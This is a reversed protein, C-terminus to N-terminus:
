QLTFLFAYRVKETSSFDKFLPPRLLISEGYLDFGLNLFKVMSIAAKKIDFLECRLFRLRFDIHNIYSSIITGVGTSSSTGDGAQCLLYARKEHNPIVVDLEYSLQLLSTQIFESTENIADYHCKIGNIEDDFDDDKQFCLNQFLEKSLLEEVACAGLITSTVAGDDDASSGGGVSGNMNNNYNDNYDNNPPDYYDDYCKNNDDKENYHYNTSM